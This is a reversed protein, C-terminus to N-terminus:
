PLFHTGFFANCAVFPTAPQFTEWGSLYYLPYSTVRILLTKNGTGAVLMQM